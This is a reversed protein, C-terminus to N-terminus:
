VGMAWNSQKFRPRIGSEVQEKIEAAHRQVREAWARQEPSAPDYEL